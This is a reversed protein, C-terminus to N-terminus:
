RTSLIALGCGLTAFLVGFFVAVLWGFATLRRFRTM